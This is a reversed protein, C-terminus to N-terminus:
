CPLMLIQLYREPVEVKQLIKAMLTIHQQNNETSFMERKVERLLLCQRRTKEISLQLLHRTVQSSAHHVEVATSAVPTGTEPREKM